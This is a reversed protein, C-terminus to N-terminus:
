ARKDNGKGNKLAMLSEDVSRHITIFSDFGSIEFIELVHDQMACAVFSYPGAHYAKATNLVVRLGASSIYELNDFDFILHTTPSILFDQLQKEFLPASNSDLRGNLVFILANAEKIITTEM